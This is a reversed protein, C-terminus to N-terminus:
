PEFYENDPLNLYESWRKNVQLNMNSYIGHQALEAVLYQLRDMAEDSLETSNKRAWYSALYVGGDSDTHTFRVINVGVTRMRRAMVAAEEHTPYNAQFCLNVGWFRVRKGGRGLTFHGDESSVIHPSGLGIPSQDLGGDDAVPSLAAVDELPFDVFVSLAPVAVTSIILTLATLTHM